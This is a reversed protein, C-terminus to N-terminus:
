VKMLKFDERQSDALGTMNCLEPVLIVPGDNGDRQSKESAKVILLPQSEDRITIGYRNKYYDLFNV